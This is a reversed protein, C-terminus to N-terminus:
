LREEVFEARAENFRCVGRGPCYQACGRAPLTAFEGRRIGAARTFLADIFRGRWEECEAEDAFSIPAQAGPYRGGRRKLTRYFAEVPLVWKEPVVMPAAFVYVPLQMDVFAVVEGKPPFGGLKYDVIAARLPGAVDESSVLDVRDIKGRLREIRGGREVTVAVRTSARDAPEDGEHEDVGFALEFYAPYYAPGKRCAAVLRSSEDALFARLMAYNRRREIQWFPDDEVGYRAEYRAYVDSAAAALLPDLKEPMGDACLTEIHGGDRIATFLRALIKHALDGRALPSPVAAPKEPRSAGLVRALFFSTPCHGYDNLVSGSWARAPSFHGAVAAAGTESLRGDFRDFDVLAERRAEVAAGRLARDFAGYAKAGVNVLPLADQVSAAERIALAAAVAAELPAAVEDLPVRVRSPGYKHNAVSGKAFLALLDDLYFTSLEPRGGEDTDPRSMYLVSRAAAAALYFLLRERALHTEEPAGVGERALAEKEGRSHFPGAAMRMPWTRALLGSLFVVDYSQNALAGADVLAVGGATMEGSPASAGRVVRKVMELFGAAGVRVGGGDAAELYDLADMLAGYAALDRFLVDEPSDDALIKRRVGIEDIIRKFERAMEAPAAASRLPSLCEVLHKVATMLFALRTADLRPAPAEDDDPTETGGAEIARRRELARLRTQWQSAGKIVAAERAMAAVESAALTGGALLPLDVYSSTLVGVVPERAFDSAAAEVILRVLAFVQASEPSLRAPAELPVGMSAFVERALAGQARADRVALALDGPRRGARILRKAERAIEDMEMREGATTIVELGGGAAPRGSEGAMFGSAIRAGPGGGAARPLDEVAVDFRERLRDLTAKAAKFLDPRGNDYPLTVVVTAVHRGLAELLALENASFELFGDAALLTPAHRPCSEALADAARSILTEADALGRRSLEEVFRRAVAALEEDVLAARPRGALAQPTVRASELSRIFREVDSYFGPFDAIPALRPLAGATSLAAVADRLIVEREYASAVRTDDGAAALTHAALTPLTTVAEGDLADVRALLRRRLAGAASADPVVITAHGGAERADVALTVVRATKGSLAGGAVVTIRKKARERAM